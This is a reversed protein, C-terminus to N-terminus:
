PNDVGYKLPVIIALHTGTDIEHGFFHRSFREHFHISLSVAHTYTLDKLIFIPHLSSSIYTITSTKSEFEITWHLQNDTVCPLGIRSHDM